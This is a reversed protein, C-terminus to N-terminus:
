ESPIYVSFTSGKGVESDIALRGRHRAVIHKVIALGLGTSSTPMSRSRAPDVRFFRETLRPIMDKAIGEGRDNVHVVVGPRGSEPIRQVVDATITVETGARGHIIANEVLNNLVQTLQDADGIVEPLDDPVNAVITVDESTARPHLLDLAARICGGLQVDSRPRVHENAEVRSLSLLDDILRRMRHAEREMIDLFRARAATDDNAAGKLTEVFGLLAALPSRLEHSANAVFDVRMQDARVTQTVDRFFLVDFVDQDLDPVADPDIHIANLEFTREVPVPFSIETVHESAGDRLRDMADLVAPHRVSLALDGGEARCDLLDRAARNAYVVHRDGDLLIVPDPLSDYIIKDVPM